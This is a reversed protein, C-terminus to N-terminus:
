HGSAGAAGPSTKFRFSLREITWTLRLFHVTGAPSLSYSRNEIPRQERLFRFMRFRAIVSLYILDTKIKSTGSLYRVEM